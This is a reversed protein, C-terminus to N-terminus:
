APAQADPPTPPPVTASGVSDPVPNQGRSAPAKLFAPANTNDELWNQGFSVLPTAVATIAGAQEVNMPQPSFANWLQILAQVLGVQFLTRLARRQSDTM